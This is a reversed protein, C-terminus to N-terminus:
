SRERNSYFQMRSSYSNCYETYVFADWKWLLHSSSSYLIFKGKSKFKFFLYYCYYLLLDLSHTPAIVGEGLFVGCTTRPLTSRTHHYYYLIITSGIVRYRARWHGTRWGNISRRLVGDRLMFYLFLTWLVRSTDRRSSSILKTEDAVSVSVSPSFTCRRLM